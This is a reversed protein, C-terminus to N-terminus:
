DLELSVLVLAFLSVLLTLMALVLVADAIM